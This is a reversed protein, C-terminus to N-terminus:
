KGLRVDHKEGRQERGKKQTQFLNLEQKRGTMQTKIRLVQFAKRGARQVHSENKERCRLELRGEGSLGERVM